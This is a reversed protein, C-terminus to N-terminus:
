ILGAQATREMEGAKLVYKEKKLLPPTDPLQIQNDKGCGSMAQYVVVTM